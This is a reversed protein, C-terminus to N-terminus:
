SSPSVSKVVGLNKDAITLYYHKNDGLSLVAARVIDGVKFFDHVLVKDVETNRIDERRVVGKAVIELATDGVSLIEVFAQNYNLKIIRGVICDGIELVLSEATPFPTIVNITSKKESSLEFATKGLLSARIINDVVYTGSGGNFESVSGLVDGPFVVCNNEVSM